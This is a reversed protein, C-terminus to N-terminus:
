SRVYFKEQHRINSGTVRAAQGSAEFHQYGSMRIYRRGREVVREFLEPYNGQNVPFAPLDTIDCVGSFHPIEVKTEALGFNKGDDMLIDCTISLYKGRHYDDVYKTRRALLIQDQDTLHHHTHILVGPIILHELLEYAICGKARLQDFRKISTGFDDQIYSTVM